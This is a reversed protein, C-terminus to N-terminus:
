VQLAEIHAIAPHSQQLTAGAEWKPHPEARARHTCHQPPLRLSPEAPVIASPVFHDLMLYHQHQPSVPVCHPLTSKLLSGRTSDTQLTGESRFSQALRGNASMIGCLRCSIVFCDAPRAIKKCPV